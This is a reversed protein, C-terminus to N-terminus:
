LTQVKFDAHSQMVKKISRFKWNRMLLHNDKETTKVTIICALIYLISQMFFPVNYFTM